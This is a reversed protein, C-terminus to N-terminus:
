LLIGLMVQGVGKGALIECEKRLENLELIRVEQDKFMGLM